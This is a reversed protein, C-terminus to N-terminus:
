KKEKVFVQGIAAEGFMAYIIKMSDGQHTVHKSNMGDRLKKETMENLLQRTM